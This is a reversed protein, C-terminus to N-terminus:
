PNQRVNKAIRVEVRTGKGYDSHIKVGYGKGYYLKMREHVAAMGFGVRKGNELAEKLEKLKHPEIGIGDDQVIILIDEEQRQCVIRIKSKGRKQKVGHYLANEALPQITFKPLCIEELEKPLTIEYDMIDHYCRQQMEMYSGTYEMEEKLTIIDKGKSLSIRFFKSLHALMEVADQQRGAEVLWIVADLINYLFHPNVQAQLLRLQDQRRLKKEQKLEAHLQKIQEKMQEVEEFHQKKEQNDM